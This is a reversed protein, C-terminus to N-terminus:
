RPIRFLPYQFTSQTTTSSAWWAIEALFGFSRISFRPGNVPQLAVQGMEALFGFSRISFGRTRPGPGPPGPCKLSSDSLASVSVTWTTRSWQVGAYKLSSDSLASVSVPAPPPSGVPWVSKLSSDSLASVSVPTSAGPGTSSRTIEALFGFSRISFRGRPHHRSTGPRCKLSSDSLASVSVGTLASWALRRSSM